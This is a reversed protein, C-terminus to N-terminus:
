MAWILMVGKPAYDRKFIGAQRATRSTIPLQDLSGFFEGTAAEEGPRLDAFVETINIACCALSNGQELLGRLWSARGRKNRLVDIIM